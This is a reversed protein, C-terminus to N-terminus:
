AKKAKPATPFEQRVGWWRATFTADKAEDTAMDHFAQRTPCFYVKAPLIDYRAGSATQVDAAPNSGSGTTNNM